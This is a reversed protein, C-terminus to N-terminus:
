EYVPANEYNYDLLENHDLNDPDEDLDDAVDASTLDYREERPDILDDLAYEYNTQAMLNDLYAAEKADDEAKAVQTWYSM